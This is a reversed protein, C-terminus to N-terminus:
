AIAGIERLRKINEKEQESLQYGNEVHNTLDEEYIKALEFIVEFQKAKPYSKFKQILQHKTM